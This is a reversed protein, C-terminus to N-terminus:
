GGSGRTTPEPHWPRLRPIWAPVAARYRRYEDGFVRLLHPEEYWRVFAAPAAWVALAYLLLVPRAMLLAEGLVIALIAVYMPNRVYRYFGGVVLRSPPAAPAPTGLGEVVFRVFAHLLVYVGPVILLAGLVQLPVAWPGSPDGSRAGTIWWPLLVTVTVPAILFATAGLAAQRRSM